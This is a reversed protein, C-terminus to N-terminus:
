PRWVLGAGAQIQLQGRHWLIESGALHTRPTDTVGPAFRIQVALHRALEIEFLSTLSGVFGPLNGHDGGASGEYHHLLVGALASIEFALRRSPALRWGAGVQVQWEVIHIAPGSSPVVATVVHLGLGRGIGLRGALHVMPDIGGERALLDAGVAAEGRVRRPSAHAEAAGSVAPAGSPATTTAVNARGDPPAPSIVPVSVPLQKEAGRALTVAKQAIELHLEVLPAGARAVERRAVGGAVDHAEIVFGKDAAIISLTVQPRGAPEMVTFGEHVLRALVHGELAVGDLLKFAAPDLASLDLAVTTAAARLSECLVLAIAAAQLRMRYVLTRELRDV